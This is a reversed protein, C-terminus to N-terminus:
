VRRSRFIAIFLAMIVVSFVLVVVIWFLWRSHAPAPTVMAISDDGALPPLSIMSQLSTDQIRSEQLLLLRRNIEAHQEAPVVALADRLARIQIAKRQAIFENRLRREVNARQSYREPPGGRDFEVLEDRQRQVVLTGEEVAARLAFARLGSSSRQQEKLAAISKERADIASVMDKRQEVPDSVFEPKELNSNPQQLVGMLLGMSSQPVIEKRPVMKTLPVCDGGPGAVCGDDLNPLPTCTPFEKAFERRFDADSHILNNGHQLVQLMGRRGVLPTPCDHAPPLDRATVIACQSLRDLDHAVTGEIKENSIDHPCCTIDHSWYQAWAEHFAFGANAETNCQIACPTHNRGYVYSLDDLHWHAENGDLIDRFLHAFEHNTWQYPNGPEGTVDGHSWHVEDYWTLTPSGRWVEVDFSGGPVPQGVLCTFQRAANQFGQWVAARPTGQGQDRSIDLSTEILGGRNSRQPGDISWVSSNDADVLKVDPSILRVRPYYDGDTSAFLELVYNGQPDTETVAVRDDFWDSRHRFIEIQAGHLPQFENSPRPEVRDNNRYRVQGRIVFNRNNQSCAGHVLIPFTMDVGPGTLHLSVWGDPVNTGAITRLGVQIQQGIAWGPFGLNDPSVTGTVDAPLNELTVQIPGTVRFDRIVWYDVNTIGHVGDPACNSFDVDAPGHVELQATTTLDISAARPGPGASAVIPSGTVILTKFEPVPGSTAQLHLVASDADVSSPNPIVSASLGAPPDSISFHIAGTSPVFRHITLPVDVAPGGQLVTTGPPLELSFDGAGGPAEEFSIDRLGIVANMNPDDVAEIIVSAIEPTATTVTLATDFGAGSTVNATAVARVSGAADLATVRLDRQINPGENPVLGIHVTIARQLASFVMNAGSPCFECGTTETFRAIRGSPSDVVVGRVLGKYTLFTVGALQKDLVTGTALSSFDVNAGIVERLPVPSLLFIALLISGILFHTFLKRPM